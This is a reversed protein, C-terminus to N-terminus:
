VPYGEPQVAETPLSSGHDFLTELKLDNDRCLLDGIYEGLARNVIM